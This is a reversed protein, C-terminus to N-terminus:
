RDNLGANKEPEERRAAGIPPFLGIPRVSALFVSVRAAGSSFVRTYRFSFLRLSFSFKM